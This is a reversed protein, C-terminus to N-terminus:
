IKNVKLEREIIRNKEKADPMRMRVGVYLAELIAQEAIRRAVVEKGETADSTATFLKIDAYKTLESKEVKVICITTAGQEKAKQMAAVVHRSNGTHSVAIAVDGKKLNCADIIQLDPDANAYCVYGLRRLKMHIFSCPVVADGLAFFCIQNANYVAELAKEYEDTVLQLTDHLTNINVSFVNNLISKMDTGPQTVEMKGFTDRSVLQVSLQHKMEAYGSVGIRKCLRIISAQSSGSLDAFEKLPLQLVELTNQLLYEAAKGESNSLTPILFKVFAIINKDNSKTKDAM